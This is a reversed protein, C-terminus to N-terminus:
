IEIDCIFHVFLQFSFWFFIIDFGLSALLMAIFVLHQLFVLNPNLACSRADRLILVSKSKPSSGVDIFRSISNYRPFAETTTTTSNTPFRKEFGDNCGEVIRNAGECSDILSFTYHSFSLSFQLRRNEGERTVVDVLFCNSSCNAKLSCRRPSKPSPNMSARLFYSCTKHSLSSCFHSQTLLM